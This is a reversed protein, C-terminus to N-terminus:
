RPTRSPSCRSSRCCTPSRSAPTATQVVTALPTESEALVGVPVVAVACISVLVYIVGTIGLGTLM